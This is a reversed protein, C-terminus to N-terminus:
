QRMIILLCMYILQEMGEADIEAITSDKNSDFLQLMEGYLCQVEELIDLYKKSQIDLLYSLQFYLYIKKLQFLVDSCECFVVQKGSDCLQKLRPFENERICKVDKLAMKENKYLQSVNWKGVGASTM